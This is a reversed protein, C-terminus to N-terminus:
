GQESTMFRKGLATTVVGLGYNRVMFGLGTKNKYDPFDGDWSLFNSPEISAVFGTKEDRGTNRVVHGAFAVERGKGRTIDRNIYFFSAKTGKEGKFLTVGLGHNKKSIFQYAVGTAEDNRIALNALVIPVTGKCLRLNLRMQDYPEDKVVRLSDVQVTGRSCAMRRAEALSNIELALSGAQASSRFAMETSPGAYEARSPMEGGMGTPASPVLLMSVGGVIALRNSRMIM